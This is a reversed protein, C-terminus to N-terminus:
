CMASRKRLASLSGLALIALMGAAPEPVAGAAGVAPPQGFNAIVRTIDASSVNRDGTVDGEQWLKTGAGTNFNAIIRTFDASSVAKDLTADGARTASNNRLQTTVTASQITGVAPPSTAPAGVATFVNAASGSAAFAPTQGAAFSGLALTVANAMNTGSIDVSVGLEDPNNFPAIGVQFQLDQPGPAAVPVQGFLMDLTTANNDQDQNFPKADFTTKFAPTPAKFVAVATDVGTLATDVGAIGQAGGATVKALLQWTGGGTNDNGNNFFTDLSLVVSNQAHSTAAFSCAALACLCLVFGRKMNM